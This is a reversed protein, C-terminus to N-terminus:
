TGYGQNGESITEANGYKGRYIKIKYSIPVSHNKIKLSKGSHKWGGRIVRSM